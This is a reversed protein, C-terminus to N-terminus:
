AVAFNPATPNESPNAAASCPVPTVAVVITGPRIRVPDWSRALKTPSASFSYAHNPGAADMGPRATSASRAARFITSATRDPLGVSSSV